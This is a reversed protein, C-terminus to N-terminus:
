KYKKLFKHLKYREIELITNESHTIYAVEKFHIHNNADMLKRKTQLSENMFEEPDFAICDTGKLATISEQPFIKM